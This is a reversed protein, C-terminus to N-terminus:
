LSLLGHDPQGVAFANAHTVEPADDHGVAECHMVVEDRWAELLSSVHPPDHDDPTTGGMASACWDSTEKWPLTDSSLFAAVADDQASLGEQGSQDGCHQSDEAQHDHERHHGDATQQVEQGDEANGEHVDGQQDEGGGDRADHEGHGRGLDSAHDKEHDPSEDDDRDQNNDSLQQSDNCHDQAHDEDVSSGAERASGDPAPVDASGDPAPVDDEQGQLDHGSQDGSHHSGEGQSDHEEHQENLAQANQDNADHAAEQQDDGSGDRAEHAGRDRGPDSGDDNLVQQSHNFHDQLDVASAQHDEAGADRVEHASDGHREHDSFGSSKGDHPRHEAALANGGRDEGDNAAHTSPMSPRGSVVQPLDDQDDNGIMWQGGEDSNWAHHALRSQDEATDDRSENVESEGDRAHQLASSSLASVEAEPQPRSGDDLGGNSVDDLWGHRSEDWDNWPASGSRDTSHAMSM